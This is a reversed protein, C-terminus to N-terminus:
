KSKPFPTFMQSQSMLSAITGFLITPWVQQGHESKKKDLLCPAGWALSTFPGSITEELMKQIEKKILLLQIPASYRTQAAGTDISNKVHEYKWILSELERKLNLHWTVQSEPIKVLDTAIPPMGFCRTVLQQHDM